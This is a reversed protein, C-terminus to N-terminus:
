ESKREELWKVWDDHKILRKGNPLKYTEPGCGVALWKYFTSRPVHLIRLADAVTLFDDHSM